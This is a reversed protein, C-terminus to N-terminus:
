AKRTEFESACGNCSVGSRPASSAVPCLCLSSTSFLFVLSSYCGQLRKDHKHTHTHARYFSPLANGARELARKTVGCVTGSLRLPFPLCSGFPQCGRSYHCDHWGANHQQLSLSLPLVSARESASNRCVTSHAPPFTTGVALRRWQCCSAARSATLQSLRSRATASARKKNAKNTLAFFLAFM